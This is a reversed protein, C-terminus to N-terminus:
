CFKIDLKIYENVLQLICNRAVVSAKKVTLKVPYLRCHLSLDRSCDRTQWWVFLCDLNELTTWMYGLLVSLIISSLFLCLAWCCEPLDSIERCSSDHRGDHTGQAQGSGEVACLKQQEASQLFCREPWGNRRLSLLNFIDGPRLWGARREMRM